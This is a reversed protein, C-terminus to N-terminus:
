ARFFIRGDSMFREVGFTREILEGSLLESTKGYFLQEGGDLLLIYDAYRVAADLNHTVAIVTKRESLAKAMRFFKNEYDADMFATAEDFLAIDTNQALLMAFWVRRLEGGSIKDSYSDAIHSIDAENIANEIIDFDEDSLRSTLGLYPSRGYAVLERVPIHPARPIQPTASIIKALEKRKYTRIDKGGLTIEGDFPVLASIASLLTSKGAGNRGIVAVLSKEKPAFSIDRLAVREKYLVRRINVSLEM